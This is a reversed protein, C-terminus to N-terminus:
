FGYVLSVGLVNDTRIERNEQYETSYSVRTALQDSMKYNVGFENTIEDGASDSTIYDTDNTVFIMDNFRHYFRSSAIYGTETDSALNDDETYDVAQTYRVGVGAQVRWTTDPTNLIRYGPGFGLFADRKKRGDLEDIEEATLLGDNLDNLEEEVMGDQNIRGLAFAYFRDNFYYQADYIAYTEEQDKDGDSDEGFEIGLGVSQAFPGQNYSMRGALAFDQSEDNGTSGAYTMSVGGFLGQRRDQPGFRDADNARAFDDEVSEEIDDLRDEVQSVGTVDAGTSMETQAFAPVSFGTALATAGALLAVAKM